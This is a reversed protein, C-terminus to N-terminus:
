SHYPTLKDSIAMLRAVTGGPKPKRRPKAGDDSEIKRYAIIEIDVANSLAIFEDETGTICRGATLTAANTLFDELARGHCPGIAGALFEHEEATLFLRHIDPLPFQISKSPPPTAM